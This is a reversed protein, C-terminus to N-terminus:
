LRAKMDKVIQSDDRLEEIETVQSRNIRITNEPQYAEEGKKVLQQQPVTQTPDGEKAGPIQQNVTQLYFVNGLTINLSDESKITGFYVQGNNLFVASFKQSGPKGFSFGKSSSFYGMTAAAAAVIVVVIVGKIFPSMTTKTRPVVNSGFDPLMDTM